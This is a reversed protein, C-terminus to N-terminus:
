RRRIANFRPDRYTSRKKIAVQYGAHLLEFWGQYAALFGDVGPKPNLEPQPYQRWQYDDFIMLGGNRLLRWALVADTLVDKATHSGDVYVADFDGSLAPLIAASKGVHIRVRDAWPATNERFTVLLASTDLRMDAHESSGGFTDICDITAGDGTLVNELLWCASRGEFSGIELVRVNPRGRLGAFLQEWVPVNGSLWDQSFAM